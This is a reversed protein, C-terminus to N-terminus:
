EAVFVVIEDGTQDLVFQLATGDPFADRLQEPLGPGVRFAVAAPFAGTACAGFVWGSFKGDPDDASEPPYVLICQDDTDPGTGNVITRLGYFDQYAPAGAGGPIASSFVSPIEYTADESLRAIQSAGARLPDAQVRQVLLLAANSVVILAVLALAILFTSRRMRFPTRRTKARPAVAEGVVPVPEEAAPPPFEDQKEDAEATPTAEWAGGRGELEHLRQLAQADLHIDAAPGYARERLVQLEDQDPHIM